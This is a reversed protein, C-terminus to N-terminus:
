AKGTSGFMKMKGIAVKKMMEKAPIIIKRPDYENPKNEFCQHVGDTFAQRIDTDINIKNVGLSVAKTIQEETLGSAGHLVIPMNLLKKIKDLREYDLKPEGKYKGHATGIAIALADVNTERVFQVAEDPNTYISDKEEVSINDEIGSLRGLEAEVSIGLAHAIKVIESTEKINQDLTHHSGDYMISTWGSAMCKMMVDFTTGHDLHLCVPVKTNKAAIAVIAQLYEMGAYKIAGESTQLIIPSNEEEAAEVLAQIIEMNNINFAGVAYGKKHADSLIEKLTVLM